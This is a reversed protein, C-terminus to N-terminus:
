ELEPSLLFPYIYIYLFFCLYILKAVIESGGAAGNSEIMQMGVNMMMTGFGLRLIIFMLTFLIAALM